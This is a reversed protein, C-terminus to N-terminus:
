EKEIELHITVPGDNNIMVNMHERFVGSQVKINYEMLYSNFQEFMVKADDPNKALDFSPRNGKKHNACLTFQSVSLIDGKVQNINLNMKDNEDSFLRINAVKHAMKKIVTEDDEKCIGVFLLLGHEIAAVEENNVQVSASKCRQILLKM